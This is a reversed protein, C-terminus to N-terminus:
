FYNKIYRCVLTGVYEHPMPNKLKKMEKKKSINYYINKFKLKVEIAYKNVYILM